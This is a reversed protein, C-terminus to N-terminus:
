NEVFGPVARYFRREIPREQIEAQYDYKFQELMLNKYQYHVNWDFVGEPASEFIVPKELVDSLVAAFENCTMNDAEITSSSILLKNEGGFDFSNMDMFSTTSDCKILMADVLKTEQELRFNFRQSLSEVIRDKHKHYLKVPLRLQVQRNLDESLAVHLEGVELLDSLIFKLSGQFYMEQPSEIRENDLSYPSVTLHVTDVNLFKKIILSEYKVKQAQPLEQAQLNFRLNSKKLRTKTLSNLQQPSLDSPHGFWITNGQNDMLVSKPIARIGYKSFNKSEHDILMSTTFNRNELFKRVTHEPESSMSAFFIRDSYLSQLHEIHDMSKICPICWTAWFDIFIYQEGTYEQPSPGSIHSSYDIIQSNAKFAFLFILLFYISHKM